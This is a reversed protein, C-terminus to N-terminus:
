EKKEIPPNEFTLCKIGKWSVGSNHGWGEKRWFGRSNNWKIAWRYFCFGRADETRVRVCSAVGWENKVTSLMCDHWQGGDWYCLTLSMNVNPYDYLKHGETLTAAWSLVILLLKNISLLSTSHWTKVPYPHNYLYLPGACLTTKRWILRNLKPQKNTNRPRDVWLSIIIPTNTNCNSHVRTSTSAASTGWFM